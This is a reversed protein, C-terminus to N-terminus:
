GDAPVFEFDTTEGIGDGGVVSEVTLVVDRTSGCGRSVFEEWRDGVGVSGGHVRRLYTVYTGASLASEATEFGCDARVSVVVRDADVTNADGRDTENSM